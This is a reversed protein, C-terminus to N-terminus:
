PSIKASVFSLFLETLCSVKVNSKKKLSNILKEMGLRPAAMKTLFHGGVLGGDQEGVGSPPVPPCHGGHAM